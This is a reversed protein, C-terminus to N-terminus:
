PLGETIGIKRYIDALEDKSLFPYPNELAASTRVGNKDASSICKPIEDFHVSGIMECVVPGPTEMVRAAVDHIDLNGEMRYYPLGYAAAINELSPMTVGSGEDCGVHRGNFNRDQMTAIAAYGANSFIFLKANIGYHVITQLEQINLQFSGEGEIMVVRKGETAWHVGVVSPLAFGMSGFGMSSVARQDQKRLFALHGASNCRSTSSFVLADGDCCLKSIAAVAQYLDVKESTFDQKELLLPFRTKLDNCFELWADTGYGSKGPISDLLRFLFHQADCTVATSNPMAFKATENADIDVLIKNARIGFREEAFATIMNDLRSGIVLLFDAAQLIMNAYRMAQLGPSGMFLPHESGFIDLARWTALVPVQLQDAAKRFVEVGGSAVLGYGALILPRHATKLHGLTKEVAANIVNSEPNLQVRVDNAFSEEQIKFQRMDKEDIEMAQVDLPIDIWVPGQRGHTALFIAKQVHYLVENPKDAIVAYKTVPAAMSIINNEQAGYQRVSRKTAFDATKVQGSIFIVPTSDMYAAACGTLANTGGPGTTILCAGLRNRHMAYAQAAISCSQEHHCCVYELRSLGMADLLHMIGGGALTFVHRVGHTFLEDMVM